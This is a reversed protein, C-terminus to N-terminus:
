RWPALEMGIWRSIAWAIATGAVLGPGLPLSARRTALAAVGTVASAVCLASVSLRPDTAGLPLGLAAALKVDGFGMASPSMLHIMMIPLAMVISGGVVYGIAAREGHAVDIIVLLVAPLATMAILRNPLRATRVDCIAALSAPILTGVFLGAREDVFAAAGVASLVLVSLALWGFEPVLRTPTSLTQMTTAQRAPRRKHLNSSATPGVGLNTPRM